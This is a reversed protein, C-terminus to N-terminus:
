FSPLLFINTRTEIKIIIIVLLREKRKTHESISDPKVSFKTPICIIPWVLKMVLDCKSYTTPLCKNQFFNYLVLWKNNFIMSWIFLSSISLVLIETAGFTGCWELKSVLLYTCNNNINIFIAENVSLNDLLTLIYNTASLTFISKIKIILSYTFFSENISYYLIWIVVLVIINRKKFIPESDVAM